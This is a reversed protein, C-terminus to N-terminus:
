RAAPHHGADGPARPEHDLVINGNDDLRAGLGDPIGVMEYGDDAAKADGVTLLSRVIM